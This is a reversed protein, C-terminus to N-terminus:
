ACEGGALKGAVRPQFGTSVADARSFRKGLSVMKANESLAPIRGSLKMQVDKSNNLCM